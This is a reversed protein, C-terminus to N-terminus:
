DSQKVQRVETDTHLLSKVMGLYDSDPATNGMEVVLRFVLFSSIALVISGLYIWRSM